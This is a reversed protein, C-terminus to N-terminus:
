NELGRLHMDKMSRSVLIAISGLFMLCLIVDAAVAVQARSLHLWVAWHGFCKCYGRFGVIWLGLRYMGFVVSLWLVALARSADMLNNELYFAFGLEILGAVVLLQRTTLFDLFPDGVLGSGAWLAAGILKGVATLILALQVIRFFISQIAVELTKMIM